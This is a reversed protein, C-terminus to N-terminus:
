VNAEKVVQRIDEITTTPDDNWEAIYVHRGKLVKLIRDIAKNHESTNIYCKALAGMVCWCVAEDATIDCKAGSADLAFHHKTWKSKDAFLEQLTM